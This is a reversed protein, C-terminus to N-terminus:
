ADNDRWVAKNAETLITSNRNLWYNVEIFETPRPSATIVQFGSSECFNVLEVLNQDDLKEVEDIFIPLRGRNQSTMHKLIAIHVCLLLSLNTGTSEGEGINRLTSVRDGIAVKMAVEFLDQLGIKGREFLLDMKGIKGDFSFLTTQQRASELATRLESNIPYEELKFYDIDSIRVGELERNISRITKKVQDFSDLFDRIEGKVDEELSERLEKLAEKEANLSDIKTIIKVYISKLDSDRFQGETLNHIIEAADWLRSEKTRLASAKRELDAIASKWDFEENFMKDHDDDNIEEGINWHDDPVRIKPLRDEIDTVADTKNIITNKLDSRKSVLSIIEERILREKEKAEHMETEIVVLNQTMSDFLKEKEPLEKISKLKEELEIAEEKLSRLERKKAELNEKAELATILRNKKKTYDSIDRNLEEVSKILKPSSVSELHISLGSSKISDVDIMSMLYVLEKSWESGNLKFSGQPLDLVESNFLKMLTRIEDQNYDNMSEILERRFNTNGSLEYELSSLKKVITDLDGELDLDTSRELAIRLEAIRRDVTGSRASLELESLSKTEKIHNEITQLESNANNFVTSKQITIDRATRENQELVDLSDQFANLDNKAAKIENRYTDILNSFLPRMSHYDVFYHGRAVGLDDYSELFGDLNEKANDLKQISQLKGKYRDFEDQFNEALTIEEKFIDSSSIILERVDNPSLKKMRLLNTFVKRYKPFDRARKLPAVGFPSEGKGILWKKMRTDDIKVGNMSDIYSKVSATDKARNGDLLYQEPILSGPYIWREFENSSTAGKGIVVLCQTGTPTSVEFVIYSNTKFYYERTDKSTKEGGWVMSRFSDVFLFQLANVLTTKGANNGGHFHMSKDVDIIAYDFRGSNVLLMKVLRPQLIDRNM